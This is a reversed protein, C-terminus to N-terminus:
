PSKPTTIFAQSHLYPALISRGGSFVPLVVSLWALMDFLVRDSQHGKWGKLFAKSVPDRMRYTEDGAGLDIFYGRDLAFIGDISDGPSQDGATESLVVEAIKEFSLQSEFSFLFYPPRVLYRKRDANSICALAGYPLIMKLKKYHRAAAFANSLEQSTLVTKVEGVASVGEIFFLGPDVSNFTFPHQENVVVVDAQKSRLGARDVIEGHSIALRRPLYEGIFTRLIAEAGSGRNGKHDFSARIEDLKAKMGLAVAGLREELM